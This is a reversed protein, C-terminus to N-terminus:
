HIVEEAVNELFNLLTVDVVLVGRQGAFNYVM